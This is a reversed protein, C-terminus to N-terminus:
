SCLVFGLKGKLKIRSVLIEPAFAQPSHQRAYVRPLCSIVFHQGQLTLDARGPRHSPCLLTCTEWGRKGQPCLKSPAAVPIRDLDWQERLEQLLPWVPLGRPLLEGARARLIKQLSLSTLRISGWGRGLTIVPNCDGVCPFAFLGEFCSGLNRPVACKPLFFFSLLTKGNKLMVVCFPSACIVLGQSAPKPNNGREGVLQHFSGRLAATIGASPTHELFPFM